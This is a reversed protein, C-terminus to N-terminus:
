QKEANKASTNPNYALQFNGPVNEANSQPKDIRVHPCGGFDNWLREM